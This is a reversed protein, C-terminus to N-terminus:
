FALEDSTKLLSLLYTYALVQRELETKLVLNLFATLDFLNFAGLRKISKSVRPEDDFFAWLIQLDWLIRAGSSNVNLFWAYFFAFYHHSPLNECFLNSHNTSILTKARIAKELVFHNFLLNSNELVTATNTKFRLNLITNNLLLRYDHSSILDPFFRSKLLSEVERINFCNM